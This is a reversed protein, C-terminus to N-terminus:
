RSRMGHKPRFGWYLLAVVSFAVGFWLVVQGIMEDKIGRSVIAIVMGIIVFWLAGQGREPAKESRRKNPVEQM